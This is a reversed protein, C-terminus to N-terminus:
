GQPKVVFGAKSWLLDWLFPLHGGVILYPGYHHVDLTHYIPVILVFAFQKRAGSLPANAGGEKQCANLSSWLSIARKFNESVDINENRNDFRGNSLSVARLPTSPSFLFLFLRQLKSTRIKLVFSLLNSLLADVNNSTRREDKLVVGYPM